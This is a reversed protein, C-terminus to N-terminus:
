LRSRQEKEGECILETHSRKGKGCADIQRNRREMGQLCTPVRGFSRGDTEPGDQGVHESDKPIVKRFKVTISKGDEM